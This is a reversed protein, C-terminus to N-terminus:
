NLRLLSLQNILPSCQIIQRAAPEARVSRFQVSLWFSPFAGRSDGRCDLTEEVTGEVTAQGTEEDTEECTEDETSAGSCIEALGGTIAM